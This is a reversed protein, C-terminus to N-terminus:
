RPRRGTVAFPIELGDIRVREGQAAHQFRFSVYPGNGARNLRQYGLTLDASSVTPADDSVFGSATLSGVASTVTLVGPGTGAPEVRSHLTADLWVKEREPAFSGIIPLTCDMVVANNDDDAVTSDRKYLVGGGGFVAIPLLTADRLYGHRESDSGCCSIPLPTLHPGYWARRKLDFAVWMNLTTSGLGAVLLEYSDTDPNYRGQASSFLSRNFYSDSTFWPDVQSESVYMVSESSWEVVGREGLWYAVDRVIVVSEQSLCGINPTVQTRAFTDNSDGTIQYLRNRRAVGLQDRRPILATIGSSDTNTPPALLENTASWAYFIREETWRMHDVALRPVGWLRDKWQTCLKLDPPSSYTSATTPLLSLVADAGGRDDTLTTNDDLDFWPYLTTGGTLTRYLGRANVIADGSTPINNCKLTQNTLSQATSLPGLGTEFITTGNTDKVKFTCAVSWSGTLGTGAGAALSPAAVPSSIQLQRASATWDIWFDHTGGNVIIIQPQANTIGGFVAARCPTTSGFLTIGTPLTVATAAFTTPNIFYLATGSQVLYSAM